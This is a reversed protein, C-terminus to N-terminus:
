LFDTDGGMLWWHMAPFDPPAIVSAQPIGLWATISSTDVGTAQLHQAVLPSAWLHMSGAGAQAAQWRCAKAALALQQPPGVWDLWQAQAGQLSLVAVGGAHWPWGSQLAFFRYRPAAQAPIAPPRLAYRWRLYAADRQGLTLDRSGAQMAAWARTVTDDFGNQAPDLERWRGPWTTPHQPATAPTTHWTLAHIPGGDWLLKLTVALRLHRESPFGYAIQHTQQAGVQRQYFAQSAHFFPGRRTLLGRWQPAVMVDGIQIGMVPQGTRWLTRPLGGCHAILDDGHWVGCGLGHGQGAAQGYKWAAWAADAEPGFVLRHLAQLPEGDQTTLDRLTFRHEGIQLAQAEAM